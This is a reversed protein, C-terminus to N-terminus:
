RSRDLVKQHPGLPANAKMSVSDIEGHEQYQSRKEPSKASLPSPRGRQGDVRCRPLRSVLRHCDAEPDGGLVSRDQGQQAVDVGQLVDRPLRPYAIGWRGSRSIRRQLGPPRLVGSSAPPTRGAPGRRALARGGGREPPLRQPTRRSPTEAGASGAEVTSSTTIHPHRYRVPTPRSGFHDSVAPLVGHHRLEGRAYMPYISADRLGV